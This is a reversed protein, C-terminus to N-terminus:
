HIVVYVLQFLESSLRNNACFSNITFPGGVKFLNCKQRSIGSVKRAFVDNACSEFVVTRRVGLMRLEEPESRSPGSPKEKETPDKFLM